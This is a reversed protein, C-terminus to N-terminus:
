RSRPRFSSRTASARAEGHPPVRARARLARPLRPDGPRPYLTPMLADWLGGTWAWDAPSWFRDGPQPFGDHSHEFGPLNGILACHPLLAGKPPGTTGSTYIIAAPDYHRTAVPDFQSSARGLTSDWDLVDDGARATWASARPALAPLRSRLASWTRSRSRISSPRARAAIPSGTSWRRPASSSRFRCPSRAWRSAPSTPSSTQPRQPLILAVRDGRAIGFSPLCTPYVTPRRSCAGTRGPRRADRKTKGFWRWARRPRRGM